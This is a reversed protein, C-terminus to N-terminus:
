VRRTEARGGRAGPGGTAERGSLTPQLPRCSHWVRGWEVLMTPSPGASGPPACRWLGSQAKASRLIGVFCPVAGM